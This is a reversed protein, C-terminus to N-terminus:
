PAMPRLQPAVVMHVRATPGPPVDPFTVRGAAPGFLGTSHKQASRLRGEAKTPGPSTVSGSANIPPLRDHPRPVTQSMYSAAMQRRCWLPLTVTNQPIM